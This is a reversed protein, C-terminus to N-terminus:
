RSFREECLELLPETLHSREAFQTSLYIHRALTLNTYLDVARQHVAGSLELFRERVGAEAKALADVREHLRMSQETLHGIFNGIDLAPDGVCYLDFDLVCIREGDFLIQDSYFDRHIGLAPREGAGGSAAEMKALLRGLRESLAPRLHGVAAFCEKLIRLEDALGHRKETPVDARHIKVAAEAIRRPLDAGSEPTILTTATKGPVKRQFWMLLADIIGVPEPVSIGDASDGGFGADWFAQQQNFATNPARKARTKGLITLDKAAEDAPEAFVDYRIVCRKGPKHRVVEIRRIRLVKGEAVLKRLGRKFMPGCRRRDLAAAIQPMSPDNAAGFPDRVKVKGM